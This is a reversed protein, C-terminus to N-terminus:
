LEGATITTIYPTVGQDDAMKETPENSDGGVGGTPTSYSLCTNKYSPTHSPFHTPVILQVARVSVLAVNDGALDYVNRLM